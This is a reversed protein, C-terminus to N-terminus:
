AFTMSQARPRCMKEHKSHARPILTLLSALAHISGVPSCGEGLQGARNTAFKNIEDAHCRKCHLQVGVNWFIKSSIYTFRM